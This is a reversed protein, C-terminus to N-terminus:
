RRHGGLLVAVDGPAHGLAVLALELEEAALGLHQAEAVEVVHVHRHHDVGRGRVSSPLSAM